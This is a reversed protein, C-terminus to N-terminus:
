GLTLCRLPIPAPRRLQEVMSDRKTAPMIRTHQRQSTLGRLRKTLLVFGLGKGAESRQQVRSAQRWLPEVLAKLRPLAARLIDL